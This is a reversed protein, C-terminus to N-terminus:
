ILINRLILNDNKWIVAHYPEKMECIKFCQYHFGKDNKNITPFYRQVMELNAVIQHSNIPVLWPILKLGRQFPLYNECGSIIWKFINFAISTLDPYLIHHLTEAKWTYQINLLYMFGIVVSFWPSDVLWPWGFFSTCTYQM